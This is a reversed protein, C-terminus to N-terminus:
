PNTGHPEKEDPGVIYYVKATEEAREKATQRTSEHAYRSCWYTRAKKAIWKECLEKTTAKYHEMEKRGFWGPGIVKWEKKVKPKRGGGVPRPELPGIQGRKKAKYIVGAETYDSM